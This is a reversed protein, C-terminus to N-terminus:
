AMLLLAVSILVAYLINNLLVTAGSEPHCFRPTIVNCRSWLEYNVLSTINQSRPNLSDALRAYTNNIVNNICCGYDDRITGLLTACEPACAIIPNMLSANCAIRAALVPSNSTTSLAEVSVVDCRVNSANRGCHLEYFEALDVYGRAGGCSTCLFETYLMGCPECIFDYFRTVTNTQTSNFFNSAWTVCEQSRSLFNETTCSRPPETPEDETIPAIGNCGLGTGFNPSVFAGRLECSTIRSENGNCRYAFGQYINNRASFSLLFLFQTWLTDYGNISECLIAVSRIFM